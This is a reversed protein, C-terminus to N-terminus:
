FKSREKYHRYAEFVVFAISFILIIIWVGRHELAMDWIISQIVVFLSEITLVFNVKHHRDETRSTMLFVIPMVIIMTFVKILVSDTIVTVIMLTEFLAGIMNMIVTRRM